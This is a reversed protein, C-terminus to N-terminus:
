VVLVVFPTSFYSLMIPLLPLLSRLYSHGTAGVIFARGLESCTFIWETALLVRDGDGAGEIELTEGVLKTTHGVVHDRLNLDLLRFLLGLRLRLRRLGFRWARHKADAATGPWPRGAAALWTRRERGDIAGATPAAVSTSRKAPGAM